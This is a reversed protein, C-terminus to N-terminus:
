EFGSENLTGIQEDPANPAVSYKRTAVTEDSYYVLGLEDDVCVSEIEKKGSFIGFRRILKTDIRKLRADWVLEYQHLYGTEPGNKPSIIAFVKGTVKERYLGVGMPENEEPKESRALATKGSVDHLTGQKDFRFIRLRRAKRETVVAIDFRSKGARFGYEVDVNNPRDLNTVVQRTKGDLGFVYLSGFPAEVKNTGLVLSKGPSSPHVWVAPDDADTQVPDTALLAKVHVSAIFTVLM